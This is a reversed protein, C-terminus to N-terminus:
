PLSDNQALTAIAVQEDSGRLYYLSVPDGPHHRRLAVVLDSSSEIPQDDDITIVVDGVHLDADAAPSGPTIEDIRAGARGIRDIQDDSLDSSRVGLWPQAHRGTLILEDAVQKAYEIPTAYRPVLTASKATSDTVVSVNKTAPM